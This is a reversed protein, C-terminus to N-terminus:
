RSTTNVSSRWRCVLKTTSLPRTHTTRTSFDDASPFYTGPGLPVSWSSKDVTRPQWLPKKSMPACKRLHWCRTVSMSSLSRQPTFLNPVRLSILCLFHNSAVSLDFKTQSLDLAKERVLAKM